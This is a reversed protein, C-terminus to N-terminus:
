SLLFVRLYLQLSAGIESIGCRSIDSSQRMQEMALSDSKQSFIPCNQFVFLTIPFLHFFEGYCDKGQEREAYCRGQCLSRILHYVILWVAIPKFSGKPIKPCCAYVSRAVQLKDLVFKDLAFAGSCNISSPDQITTCVWAILV